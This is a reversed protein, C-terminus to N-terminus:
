RPCVGRTGAPPELPRVPRPGRGRGAPAHVGSRHPIGRPASGRGAYRRRTAPPRPLPRRATSHPIRAPASPAPVPLPRRRRHAAEDSAPRPAPRCRARVPQRDQATLVAVGAHPTGQVHYEAAVGRPVHLALGRHGQGPGPVEGTHLDQLLDHRPFGGAPLDFQYPDERVMDRVRCGQPNEIRCELSRGTRTHLQLRQAGELPIRVAGLHGEERRAYQIPTLRATDLLLGYLDEGGVDAHRRRPASQRLRQPILVARAYLHQGAVSQGPVHQIRLNRRDQGHQPRPGGGGDLELRQLFQPGGAFSGATASNRRAAVASCFEEETWSLAMLM